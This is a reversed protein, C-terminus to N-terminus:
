EGQGARPETPAPSVRWLKFSEEDFGKLMMDFPEAQLEADPGYLM